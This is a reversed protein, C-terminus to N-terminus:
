IHLVIEKRIESICSTTWPLVKKFWITLSYHAKRGSTRYFMKLVFTNAFCYKWFKCQPNMSFYLGQGSAIVTPVSQWVYFHSQLNMQQLLISKKKCAIAFDAIHLNLCMWTLINSTHLKIIKVQDHEQQPRLSIGTGWIVTFCLWQLLLSLFVLNFKTFLGTALMCIGMELM